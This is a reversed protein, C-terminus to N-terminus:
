LFYQSNKLDCSRFKLCSKQHNSASQTLRNAWYLRRKNIHQPRFDRTVCDIKWSTPTIYFQQIKQLLWPHSLIEDMYICKQKTLNWMNSLLEIECSVVNHEPFQLCPADASQSLDLIMKNPIQTCETGIAVHVEVIIELKVAYIKNKFYECFFLRTTHSITFSCVLICYTQEIRRSALNKDIYARVDRDDIM